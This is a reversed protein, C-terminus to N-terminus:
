LAKLTTFYENVSHAGQQVVYLRHQLKGICLMDCQSFWERLDRWVDAVNEIADVSKAISPVISNLIWNHLMTNCRKWAKSMSHFSHPQQISGDLFGFKNKSISARKMKRAWLHYNPGVLQFRILPTAPSENPHLYDPNKPHLSPDTTIPDQTPPPSTWSSVSTNSNHKPMIFPLLSPWLYEVERRIKLLSESFFFFFNRTSYWELIFKLTLSIIASEKQLM